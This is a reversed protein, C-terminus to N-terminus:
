PYGASYLGAAVPDLVSVFEERGLSFPNNSENADGVGHLSGDPGDIADLYSGGQKGDGM